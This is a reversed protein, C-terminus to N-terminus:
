MGPQNLAKNRESTTSEQSITESTRRQKKSPDRINPNNTPLLSTTTRKALTLISYNYSTDKQGPTM